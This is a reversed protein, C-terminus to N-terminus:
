SAARALSVRAGPGPPEGAPRRLELRAVYDALAEGSGYRRFRQGARGLVGHAALAEFAEEAVSLPLGPIAQAAQHPDIGAEDRGEIWDCVSRHGDAIPEFIARVVRETTADVLAARAPDATAGIQSHQRVAPNDGFLVLSEEEFRHQWHHLARRQVSVPPLPEVSLDSEVVVGRRAEVARRLWRPDLGAARAFVGLHWTTTALASQQRDVVARAVAFPDSRADLLVPTGARLHIRGLDPRDSVASACWSLFGRFTMPVKSRGYIEQELSREEPIRDYTIAIPLLAFREGTAQLARLVGRKPRLFRGTRSRTGEPFFLLPQGGDLVRRLAPQLAPDPQGAARRIYFAGAKEFLWGLLGVRSFEQAAAIAPVDIRLEPHAFCLYPVVLFDVFSRHNPALVLRTDPPAKALAEEFSPRDFTVRDYLSRMGKRLGYALARVALNGRPRGAAFALDSDPAHHRRGAIPQMRDDRKLVWRHLGACITEVYERPVFGPADFPRSSRFDFTNHTFYPYAYCIERARAATRVLRRAARARPSLTLLSRGILGPVEHRLFHARGFGHERTGVFRLDPRAGEARGAFYEAAARFAMDFRIAREAGSVAHLIPVQANDTGVPGLFAAEIVRAAVEDCPITDLRGDPAALFAKVVGTGIGLLVASLGTAADLWGPFPRLWCASIVSPRVISLPVDRRGEVLAHEAIAKTLTYTNPLGAEHLLDEERARGDQVIRLLEPFPRPLPPLVELVPISAGRFPSVYATSVSTFRELRRCRRALELVNGAGLVNIEFAEALPLDFRVSAACHIVHTVESALRAAAEEPIDCGPRRLDGPVARISERFSPALGRICPSPLVQEDLRRASGKVAPRVLAYVRAVALEERRRGIEALVVKGLFGTAGTIFVTKNTGAV